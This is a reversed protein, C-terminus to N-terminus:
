VAMWFEGRKTTIKIQDDEVVAKAGSGYTNAGRTTRFMENMGKCAAELLENIFEPYEM